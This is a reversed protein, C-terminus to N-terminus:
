ILRLNSLVERMQLVTTETANTLPLRLFDTAKKDLLAYGAKVPIPNTEIFCAKFLPSLRRHLELAKGIERKLLAHVMQTCLKPALNAVVSIVGDAGLAM